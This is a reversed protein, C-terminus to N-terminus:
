MHQRCSSQQKVYLSDCLLVVGAKDELCKWSPLSWGKYYQIWVFESGTKKYSIGVFCLTVSIRVMLLTIMGATLFELIKSSASSGSKLKPSWALIELSFASEEILIIFARVEVEQPLCFSDTKAM